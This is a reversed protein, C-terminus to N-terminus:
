FKGCPNQETFTDEEVVGFHIWHINRDHEVIKLFLTQVLFVDIDDNNIKTIWQVVVHIM